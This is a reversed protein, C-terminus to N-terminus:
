KKADKYVMGPEYIQAPETAKLADGLPLVSGADTACLQFIADQWGANHNMLNQMTIPAQYKLRTLFGDPLYERVDADLSIRGQEWLQMVSVWVLLKSVSGWEFVTKEDAALHNGIHAYGYATQYITDEGRFVAVSVAATTEKHAEIYADIKQVAEADRIGSPLTNETAFAMTPLLLFCFAFVLITSILRCKM